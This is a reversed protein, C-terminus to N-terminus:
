RMLFRKMEHRSVVLGGLKLATDNIEDDLSNLDLHIRECMATRMSKVGGRPWANWLGWEDEGMIRSRTISVGVNPLDLVWDEREYRSHSDGFSTRRWVLGDVVTVADYVLSETWNGVGERYGREIRLPPHEEVVIDKDYTRGSM